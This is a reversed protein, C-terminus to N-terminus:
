ETAFMSILTPVDMLPAMVDVQVEAYQICAQRERDHFRLVRIPEELVRRMNLTCAHDSTVALANDMGPVDVIQVTQGEVFGFSQDDTNVLEHLSVYIALYHYDEPSTRFLLEYGNIVADEADLHYWEARVGEELAMQNALRWEGGERCTYRVTGEVFEYGDPIFNPLPLYEAGKLLEQFTAMNTATRQLSNSTSPYYEGDERMEYIALLEGDNELEMVWDLIRISREIDARLMEPEMTPHAIEPQEDYIIDGNWNTTGGYVSAAMAATGMCLVVILAIVVGKPIAYKVKMDGKEAKTMVRQYLFPDGTMGSLTHDIARKFRQKEQHENM